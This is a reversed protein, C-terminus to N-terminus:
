CGEVSEVLSEELIYGNDREICLALQRNIQAIDAIDICYDILQHMDYVKDANLAAKLNDRKEPNGFDSIDSTFRKICSLQNNCNTKLISNAYPNSKMGELNIQLLRMIFLSRRCDITLQARKMQEAQAPTFNVNEFAMGIKNKFTSLHNKASLPVAVSALLLM